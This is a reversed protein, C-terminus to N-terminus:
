TIRTRACIVWGLRKLKIHCPRPSTSTRRREGFFCPCSSCVVFQFLHTKQEERTQLQHVDRKRELAGRPNISSGALSVVHLSDLLDKRNACIYLDASRPHTQSHGGQCHQQPLSCCLRVIVHPLLIRVKKIEEDQQKHHTHRTERNEKSEQTNCLCEGHLPPPPLILVCALGSDDLKCLFAFACSLSLSFSCPLALAFTVM